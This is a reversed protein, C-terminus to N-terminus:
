NALCYLLTRTVGQLIAVMQPSGAEQGCVQLAHPVEQLHGVPGPVEEEDVEACSVVGDPLAARALRSQPGAEGTMDPSSSASAVQRGDPSAKRGGLHKGRRQLSERCSPWAQAQSDHSCESMRENLLSKKLVHNEWSQKLVHKLLLFGQGHPAEM